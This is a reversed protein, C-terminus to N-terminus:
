LWSAPGPQLEYKEWTQEAGFSDNRILLLKVASRVINWPFLLGDVPERFFALPPDTVERRLILRQNRFDSRILTYKQGNLKLSENPYIKRMRISTIILLSDVGLFSRRHNYGLKRVDNMDADINTTDKGEIKFSFTQGWVLGVFLLLPINRTM